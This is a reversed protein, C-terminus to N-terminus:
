RQKLRPRGNNSSEQKPQAAQSNEQKKREVRKHPRLSAKMQDLQNQIKLLVEDFNGM